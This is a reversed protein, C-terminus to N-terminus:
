TLEEKIILTALKALESAKQLGVFSERKAVCEQPYLLLNDVLNYFLSMM